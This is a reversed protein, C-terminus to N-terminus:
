SSPQSSKTKQLKLINSQSLTKGQATITKLNTNNFLFLLRSIGKRKHKDPSETAIVVTEV